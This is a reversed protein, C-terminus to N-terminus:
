SGTQGGSVVGGSIGNRSYNPTVSSKSRKRRIRAGATGASRPRQLIAVRVAEPLWQWGPFLFHPEIPFWYNPTQVWYARAIRLVEEAMRAQERIFGVHEIASNSFAVDFSREAFEGLCTADGVVCTMREDTAQQEMLNVITLSTSPFRAPWGRLTWFALRGVLDVIRLPRPLSDLLERFM